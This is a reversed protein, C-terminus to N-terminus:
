HGGFDASLTIWKRNSPTGTSVTHHQLLQSTLDMNILDEEATTVEWTVDNDGYRRKEKVESIDGLEQQIMREAIERRVRGTVVMKAAIKRKMKVIQWKM